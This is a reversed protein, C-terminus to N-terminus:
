AFTTKASFRQLHFNDWDPAGISAVFFTTMNEDCSMMIHHWRSWSASTNELRFIDGWSSFLRAVIQGNLSYECFLICYPQICIQLRRLWRFMVFFREGQVSDTGGFCTAANCCQYSHRVTGTCTIYCKDWIQPKEPLGKHYNKCWSNIYTSYISYTM